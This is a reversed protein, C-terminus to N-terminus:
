VPRGPSVEIEEADSTEIRCGSALHEGVRVDDSKISCAVVEVVSSSGEQQELPGVVVLAMNSEPVAVVRGGRFNVISGTGTAQHHPLAVLKCLHVHAFGFVPVM